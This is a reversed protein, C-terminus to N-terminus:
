YCCFRWELGNVVLMLFECTRRRPAMHLAARELVPAPCNASLPDCDTFQGDSQGGPPGPSHFDCCDFLCVAGANLDWLTRGPLIEYGDQRGSVHRDRSRSDHCVRVRCVVCPAASLLSLLSSHTIFDASILAPDSRTSLSSKTWDVRSTELEKRGEEGREDRRFSM